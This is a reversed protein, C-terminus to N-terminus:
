RYATQATLTSRLTEKMGRLEEGHGLLKELDAALQQKSTLLDKREKHLQKIEEKLQNSDKTLEQIKGDKNRMVEILYTQPQQLSQLLSSSEELMGELQNRKKTEKELDDQLTTNKKQLSLVRQALRV